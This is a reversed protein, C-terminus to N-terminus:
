APPSTVGHYRALHFERHVTPRDPQSSNAMLLVPVSGSASPVLMV